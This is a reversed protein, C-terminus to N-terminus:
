EGEAEKTRRDALILEEILDLVEGPDREDEIAAELDDPVAVFGHGADSLTSRWARWESADPDNGDEEFADIVAVIEIMGAEDVDYELFLM